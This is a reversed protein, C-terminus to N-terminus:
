LENPNIYAFVEWPGQKASNKGMPHGDVLITATVKGGQGRKQIAHKSIDTWKVSLTVMADGCWRRSRSWSGGSRELPFDPGDTGIEWDIKVFEKAPAWTAFLSYDHCDHPDPDGAVPGPTKGLPTPQHDPKPEPLRVPGGATQYPKGGKGSDGSSECGEAGSLLVAALALGVATLKRMM